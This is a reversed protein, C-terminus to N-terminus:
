STKLFGHSGTRSDSGVRIADGTNVVVLGEHLVKLRIGGGESSTESEGVRHSDLLEDILVLVRLIDDIRVNGVTHVIVAVRLIIALPGHAVLNDLLRLIGVNEGSEHGRGGRPNTNKFDLVLREWLQRDQPIDNLEHPRLWRQEGARVDGGVRDTQARIIDQVTPLQQGKEPFLDLSPLLCLALRLLIDGYGRDEM